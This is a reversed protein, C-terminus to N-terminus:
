EYAILSVYDVVEKSPFTKASNGKKLIEFVPKSAVAKSYEMLAMIPGFGCVSINHKLIEEYVGQTNLKLIKDLVLHDLEIGTKPSVFHSFDSSAIILINKGLENNANFISKALIKANEPSQISMTVPVIQFPYKLMYQLFPVMVEGSHEFKNEAESLPFNMKKAFELDVKTRGLPTKWYANNDVVLPNKSPNHNPNIIIITEYQATSAQINIFFHMAEYGSYIYGAHPVIGGIIKEKSFTTNVLSEETQQISLLLDKLEKENGPYFKNAFAPERIKM